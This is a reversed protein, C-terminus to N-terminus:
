RMTIVYYSKLRYLWSLGYALLSGKNNYFFFLRLTYVYRSTSKRSDKDSQLGIERYLLLVLIDCLNVFM